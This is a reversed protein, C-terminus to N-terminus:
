YCRNEFCRLRHNRSRHVLRRHRFCHRCRYRPWRCKSIVRHRCRNWCCRDTLERRIALKRFATPIMERGCKKNPLESAIFVFCGNRTRIAFEPEWASELQPAPDAPACRVFHLGCAITRHLWSKACRTKPFSSRWLSVPKRFRAAFATALPTSRRCEGACGLREGLELCFDYPNWNSIARRLGKTTGASQSVGVM